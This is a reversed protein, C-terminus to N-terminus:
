GWKQASAKLEKVKAEVKKRRSTKSDDLDDTNSPPNEEAEIDDLDKDSPGNDEDVDEEEEISQIAAQIQAVHEM